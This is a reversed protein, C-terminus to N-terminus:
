PAAGTVAQSTAETDRLYLTLRLRAEVAPEGIADRRFSIDDLAAFPVARLAAMAFDWIAAYSGKVPLNVQYTRVNAGRDWASKYEGQRLTLGSRAALAFLTKVQQEAYRREGLTGYFAALNDQDPAAAATPAVAASLAAAAAAREAAAVVAARQAAHAQFAARERELGTRAFATWALAAALALALLVGGALIPNVRRLALRLRLGAAAPTPSSM